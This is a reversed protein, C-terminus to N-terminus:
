SRQNNDKLKEWEWNASDDVRYFRNVAATGPTLGGNWRNVFEASAPANETDDPPIAVTIEGESVLTYASGPYVEKVSVTLGAPIDKLLVERVGAKDLRISVVNSYVTVGSTDKGEVLFVFNADEYLSCFSELKKRILLAGNKQAWEPKLAAEVDYIWQDEGAGTQRFLNGPLAVLFPQFRCTFLESNGDELVVLYMGPLLSQASGSLKGTLEWQLRFTGIPEPRHTNVQVMADEAAKIWREAQDKGPSEEPLVIEEFAPLLHYTGRITVDAIRYLKGSLDEMKGTFSAPFDSSYLSLACPRTLDIPEAAQAYEPIIALYLGVVTLFLLLMRSAKM